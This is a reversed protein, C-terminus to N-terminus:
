KSAFARSNCSEDPGSVLHDPHCLQTTDWLDPRGEMMMPRTRRQTFRAGPGEFGMSSVTSGAYLGPETARSQPREPEKVSPPPLFSAVQEQPPGRALNKNTGDVPIMLFSRKLILERRRRRPLGALAFSSGSPKVLFKPEATGCFIGSLLLSNIRTARRQRKQHTTSHINM